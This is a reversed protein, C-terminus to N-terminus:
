CAAGTAEDSEEDAHDETTSAGTESTESQKSSEDSEYKGTPKPKTKPEDKCDTEWKCPPEPEPPRTPKPPECEELVRDIIKGAAKQKEDDDHTKRETWEHIAVQLCIWKSHADVLDVFANKLKCGYDAPSMRLKTWLKRFACELDLYAVYSRLLDSGPAAMDGELTTAKTVLEGILGEMKEPLGALEDFEADYRKVCEEADAVLRRLEGIAPRPDKCEVDKCCNLKQIEDCKAPETIKDTDAIIKCWCAKLHARQAPDVTGYLAKLIRQLQCKLDDLPKKQAKWSDEFRKQAGALKKYREDVEGKDTGYLESRKAAVSVAVLYDINPKTPDDCRKKPAQPKASAAPAPHEASSETM